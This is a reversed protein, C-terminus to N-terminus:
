EKVEELQLKALARKAMLVHDFILDPLDSIPWWHAGHERVRYIDHEDIRILAYYAISIGRVNPERDPKTFTSVQKLFIDKLGTTQKLVREAADDSSESNRVFGGMLSWSSKAPEFDGPYLLLRLEGEDYGFIVCDIAVLHKPQNSYFKM